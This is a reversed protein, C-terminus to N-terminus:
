RAKDSIFCYTWHPEAKGQDWSMGGSMWDLTVYTTTSESTVLVQSSM